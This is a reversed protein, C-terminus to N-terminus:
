REAILWPKSRIMFGSSTFFYWDPSWILILWLVFQINNFSSSNLISGSGSFSLSIRLLLPRIFYRVLRYIRWLNAPKEVCFLYKSLSYNVYNLIFIIRKWIRNLWITLSIGSWYIKKMCFASNLGRTQRMAMCRAVDM